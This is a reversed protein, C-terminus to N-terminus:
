EIILLSGDETVIPSGEETIIYGEFGMPIECASPFPVQLTFDFRVGSLLDPQECSLAQIEISDVLRYDRDVDDMYAILDCAIATTDSWVDRENDAEKHMNDYIWATFRYSLVSSGGLNEKRSGNYNFLFAPYRIDGNDLSDVPAEFQVSNLQPHEEGASILEKVIQNLSRSPM